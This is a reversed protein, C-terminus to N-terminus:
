HPQHDKNWRRNVRPDHINIIDAQLLREVHGDCFLINSAGQHIDSPFQGVRYIGIYGSWYDWLTSDAFAIMDSPLLVQKEHTEGFVDHDRYVGLGPNPVVGINAGWVNYGYSFTHSSGLIRVEDAEYGYYAPQGSGFTPTWLTEPGTEPCQMVKTDGNTFQRLQPPWLWERLENVAHHDIGVPYWGGNNTVYQQLAIGLQRQHGGCIAARAASRAQGLTPLLLALLLAVISIVVLLEILTFGRNQRHPYVKM